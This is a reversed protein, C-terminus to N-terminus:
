PSLSLALSHSLTLSTLRTAAVPPPPSTGAIAALEFLVEVTGFAVHPDLAYLRMQYYNGVLTMTLAGFAWWASWVRVASTAYHQKVTAAMKSWGGPERLVAVVSAAQV